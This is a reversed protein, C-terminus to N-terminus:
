RMKQWNIVIDAGPRPEDVLYARLTTRGDALLSDDLVAEHAAVGVRSLVLDKTTGGYM